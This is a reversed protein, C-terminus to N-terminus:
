FVATIVHVLLSLSLNVVNLLFIMLFVYPGILSLPIHHVAYLWIYL